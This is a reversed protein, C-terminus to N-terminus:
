LKSKRTYQAQNPYEQNGHGQYIRNGSKDPQMAPKGCLGDQRMYTGNPCQYSPDMVGICKGEAETFGNPCSLIFPAFELAACQGITSLPRISGFLRRRQWVSSASLSSNTQYLNQKFHHSNSPPGEYAANSNIPHNLSPYNSIIKVESYGPPCQMRGETPTLETCNPHKCSKKVIYRCKHHQTIQGGELCHYKFPKRISELCLDAHHPGLPETRDPCDISPKFEVYSECGEIPCSKELTVLCYDGVPSSNGNACRKEIPRTVKAICRPKEKFNSIRKSHHPHGSFLMRHNPRESASMDDDPALIESEAPCKWDPGSIKAISRCNESRCGPAQTEMCEFQGLENKILELGQPCEFLANMKQEKQLEEGPICKPLRSAPSESLIYGESCRYLIPEINQQECKDSRLKFEKPCSLSPMVKSAKICKRNEMSQIGDHCVYVVPATEVHVCTKPTYEPIEVCQHVIKTGEIPRTYDHYHHDGHHHSAHNFMVNLNRPEVAVERTVGQGTEADYSTCKKRYQTTSCDKETKRECVLTQLNLVFRPPCTPIPDIEIDKRCKTEAQDFIYGVPCDVIPSMSQNRVCYQGVVVAEPDVCYSVPHVEIPREALYCFGGKYVYGQNCRPAALEKRVCKRSSELYTYGITCQRPTEQQILYCVDLGSLDKEKVMGMPCESIPEMFEEKQCYHRSEITSYEAPASVEKKVDRLLYGEPCLIEPGVKEICAGTADEVSNEPCVPKHFVKVRCVPPRSGDGLYEKDGVLFALNSTYSSSDQEHIARISLPIERCNYEKKLHRQSYCGDERGEEGAGCIMEAEKLKYCDGNGDEIYGAECRPVEKTEIYCRQAHKDYRTNEPCALIKETHVNKSCQTGGISLKFGEPCSRILPETVICGNEQESFLGNQPCNPVPSLVCDVGNCFEGNADVHSGAKALLGFIIIKSLFNLLRM